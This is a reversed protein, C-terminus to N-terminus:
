LSSFQRVAHNGPRSLTTQLVCSEYRDRCDSKQLKALFYGELGVKSFM